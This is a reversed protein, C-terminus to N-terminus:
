FYTSNIYFVKQTVQSIFGDEQIIEEPGNPCDSSIISCNNYASEVLVFGPDEWLSTLIFAKSKRMLKHVNKTFSYVLM